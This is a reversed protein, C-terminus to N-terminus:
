QVSIILRRRNNRIALISIAPDYSTINKQMSSGMKTGLNRIRLEFLTVFKPGQDCLFPVAQHGSGESLFSTIRIGLSTIGSGSAQSGQDRPKHDRIGLSHDWEELEQDWGCVM